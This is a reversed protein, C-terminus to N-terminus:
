CYSSMIYISRWCLPFFGLLQLHSVDFLKLQLAYLCLSHISKFSAKKGTIFCINRSPRDEYLRFDCLPMKTSVTISIDFSTPKLHFRACCVHLMTCICASNMYICVSRMRCTHLEHAFKTYIEHLNCTLEIRIQLIDLLAILIKFHHPFFFIFLIQKRTPSLPNEQKSFLCIM